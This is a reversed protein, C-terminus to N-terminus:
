ITYMPSAISSSHQLAPLPWNETAPLVTIKTGPGSCSRSQGGARACASSSSTAASLSAAVQFRRPSRTDNIPVLGSRKRILVLQLKRGGARKDQRSGHDPGRRADTGLRANALSHAGTVNAIEM